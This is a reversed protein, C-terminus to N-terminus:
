HPVGCVGDHNDGVVGVELIIALGLFNAWLDISINHLQGVVVNLQHIFWSVHVLGIFQRPSRIHCWFILIFQNDDEWIM